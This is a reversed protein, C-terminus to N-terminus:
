FDEDPDFDDDKYLERELKEQERKERAIEESMPGIIQPPGKGVDLLLIMPM